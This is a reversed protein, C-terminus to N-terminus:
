LLDKLDSTNRVINIASATNRGVRDNVLVRRCAPLGMILRDYRVTKLQQETVGRWEEPRSTTLIVHANELANLADVNEQILPTTGWRPAFSRHSSEVLVGDIDVFLTVFEACYRKWDEETGWDVYGDVPHAHFANSPHRISRDIVESIFKHKPTYADHWLQPSIFSYAGCCFLPSIIEKEVCRNIRGDQIEVYSKNKAIVPTELRQLDVVAVENSDKCSFYFTNDCDRLTFSGEVLAEGLANSVTEAQSRTNGVDVIEMDTYGAITFEMRIADRGFQGLDDSNMAVILRDFGSIGKLAEVMMINGSPHTLSWKPKGSFRESKGAATLIITHM